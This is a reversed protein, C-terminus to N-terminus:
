PGLTGSISPRDPRGSLVSSLFIMGIRASPTSVMDM